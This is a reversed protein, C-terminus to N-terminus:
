RQRGGSVRKFARKQPFGAMLTALGNLAEGRAGARRRATRNLYVKEAHEVGEADKWKTESDIWM